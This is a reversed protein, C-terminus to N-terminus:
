APDSWITTHNVGQFFVGFHVHADPRPVDSTSM